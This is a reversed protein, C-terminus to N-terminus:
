RVRETGAGPSAACEAKTSLLQPPLVVRFRERLLAMDHFDRETPPYGSAHCLVQTSPSLCRVSRGGIRGQGTLGDAPFTWKEGNEMLYVGNGEADLQIAHVDIELGAHDSLVFSDPPTGRDLRFDKLLEQLRPVDSTRVIIDLDKHSRTQNGLLADIGWGGDLWVAIDAKDLLKLIGVVASSSMGHNLDM